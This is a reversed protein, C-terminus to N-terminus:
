KLFPIIINQVFWDADFHLHDGDKEILHLDGRRDLAQLGLRDERYLISDHLSTINSLSGKQYFGFWESEKPILTTDNLFKVLVLRQINKVKERYIENIQNEQNIDALFQSYKRYVDEKLPDHWYQAQVVHSQVLKTYAGYSLLENVLLCLHIFGEVFCKPLGFIGQQPGGISIVAGVKRFSCKQVLARVFLGGQSIGIMHLGNSFNRDEQIIRCVYELQNNIPMFYTDKIDEIISNSTTICKVYTGPVEDEIAKALKLIGTGTGRDGMGHWIIVPLKETLRCSFHPFLLTWALLIYQVFM